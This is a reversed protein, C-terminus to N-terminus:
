LIVFYTTWLYYSNINGAPTVMVGLYYTGHPLASTPVSGFPSESINGPSNQRWAAMGASVPQLGGASTVLYVNNPDIDPAFLALYVDVNSSFYPLDVQLDLTGSAVDGVAVPKCQAPYPSKVPSAVPDYGYQDQGSPPPIAFVPIGLAAFNATVTKDSDMTLVCTGSGSCDDSWGAFSSTYDAGDIPTADLALATNAIFGAECTSTGSVTNSTCDIGAPTSSANGSGNVTVSLTHVWPADFYLGDHGYYSFVVGGGTGPGGPSYVIRPAVDEPWPTVDEDNVTINGNWTTPAGTNAYAWIAKRQPTGAPDDYIYVMNIYHNPFGKYPKADAIYEDVGSVDSVAQEVEWSVGGNASYRYHLDIEHGGLDRNYFVWVGSDNDNAAATRPDYNNVSGDTLVTLFWLGGNDSTFGSIGWNTSCGPSFGIMYFINNPPGYALSGRPNADCGLIGSSDDQWTVAADDSYRIFDSDTANTGDTWRAFIRGDNLNQTVDFSEELIPAASVAYNHPSGGALPVTQVRLYGDDNVFFVDLEQPTEDYIVRIRKLDNRPSTGSPVDTNFSGIQSWTAGHDLSNFIRITNEGQAQFAVFMDGNMAYDVDFCNVTGGTWVPIDKGWGFAWGAMLLLFFIALCIRKM